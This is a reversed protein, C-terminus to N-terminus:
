RLLGDAMLKRAPDLQNVQLHCITAFVMGSVIHPPPNGPQVSELALEEDFFPIAEAFAKKL